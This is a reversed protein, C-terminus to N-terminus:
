QSDGLIKTLFRKGDSTLQYFRGSKQYMDLDRLISFSSFFRSDRFRPEYNRDIRYVNQDKHFFPKPRSYLSNIKQNFVTESQTIVYDKYIWSILDKFTFKTIFVKPELDKVLHYPSLDSGTMKRLWLWNSDHNKHMHHFRAFLVLLILTATLVQSFPAHKSNTEKEIRSLLSEENVPSALKCMNDFIKSTSHDFSSEEDSTTLMVLQNLIENLSLTKLTKRNKLIKSLENRIREEEFTALFNNLSFGDMRHADLAQLFVTFLNECSYAFYDHCRFLRWKEVIDQLYEPFQLPTIQKGKKFQGFYVSDLFTSENIPVANKGLERVLFLILSLSQKRREHLIIHSQPEPTQVLNLMIERLLNRDPSEPKNMLCICCKSGYDRLANKSIEQKGVFKKFYKTTSIKEEFANAMKQGLPTLVDRNVEHETLGLYNMSAQYYYGYGGLPNGLHRFGQMQVYEGDERWKHKGKISGQINDHNSSLNSESHSICALCYARARDLFMNQFDTFRAFNGTENVNKVVWCYFSYYRARETLSIIGTLLNAKMRDSTRDLGLPDLM